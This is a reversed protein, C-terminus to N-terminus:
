QLIKSNSVHMCDLHLCSHTKWLNKNGLHSGFVKKRIDLFTGFESFLGPYISQDHDSLISKFSLETLRWILM